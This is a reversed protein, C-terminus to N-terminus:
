YPWHANPSFYQWGITAFLVAGNACGIAILVSRWHRTTLRRGLIPRGVLALGLLLAPAVPIFYRGQLGRIESAGVSTFTAYLTFALALVSVLWCGFLWGAASRRYANIGALPRGAGWALIVLLGGYAVFLAGGLFRLHSTLGYRIAVFEMALDDGSKLLTTVAVEFAKWPHGLIWMLQGTPSRSLHGGRLASDWHEVYPNTHMWILYAGLAAVLSACPLMWRYLPAKPGRWRLIPLALALVAYVPKCLTLAVIIGVLAARETKPPVTGTVLARRALLAFFLLALANVVSDGDVGAAEIIAMPMLGLAIFIWQLPGAIRVAQWAILSYLTIGALRAFYLDWLCPLGLHSSIWVAPIHPLYMLPAYLGARGRAHALSGSRPTALDHMLVPVQVRGGDRQWVGVYRSAFWAYERPIEHYQGDADYRTFLRGSALEFVRALHMDEDNVAYPPNIVTYALGLALSLFLFAKAPTWNKAALSIAPVFTM